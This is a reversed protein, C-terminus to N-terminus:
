RTTSAEVAAARLAHRRDLGLSGDGLEAEPSTGRLERRRHTRLRHSKGEPVPRKASSRHVRQERRGTTWPPGISGWQTHPGHIM